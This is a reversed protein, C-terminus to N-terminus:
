DNTMLRRCEANQRRGETKQCRDETKQRRDEIRGLMKRGCTKLSIESEEMIINITAALENLLDPENKGLKFIMQMAYIKIAPTISGDLLWDFCTNLLKGPEKIREIEIFESFIKMFNRRVGGINSRTSKGIVEDLFPYIEEPHKECYLQVARAARMSIPYKELFCLDLLDRFTAPNEELVKVALDAVVRESGMDLISRYDTNM